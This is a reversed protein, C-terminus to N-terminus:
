TSRQRCAPELSGTSLDTDPIKLDHAAAGGNHVTLTGGRDIQRTSVTVAFETLEATIASGATEGGGTRLALGRGVISFIAACAAFAALAALAFVIMTWSDRSMRYRSMENTISDFREDLEDETAHEPLLEPRSETTTM